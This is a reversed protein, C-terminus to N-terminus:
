RSGSCVLLALMREGSCGVGLIRWQGRSAASFHSCLSDGREWEGAISSDM